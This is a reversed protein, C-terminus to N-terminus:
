TRRSEIYVDDIDHVIVVITIMFILHLLHYHIFELSIRRNNQKQKQIEKNQEIPTNATRLLAVIAM